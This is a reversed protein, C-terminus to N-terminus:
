VAVRSKTLIRAHADNAIAEYLDRSIVNYANYRFSKTQLSLAYDTVVMAALLLGVVKLIPSPFRFYIERAALLAGVTFLPILFLCFRSNPYRVKAVVHLAVM